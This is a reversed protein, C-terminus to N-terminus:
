RSLSTIATHIETGRTFILHKMDSHSLERDLISLVANHGNALLGAAFRRSQEVALPREATTYIFLPSFQADENIYAIPSAEQLRTLSTCFANRKWRKLIHQEPELTLDFSATDVAIIGKFRDRTLEQEALYRPHTGLLTVLHAGSSHGSLTINTGDGGYDAINDVVWRMAAACDEIHAPHKHTPSLRYNISVVIIGDTTYASAERADVSKKDGINWGGGHVFIHVPLAAEEPNDIPQPLYIDLMHHPNVSEEIYPIDTHVARSTLPGEDAPTVAPLAPSDDGWFAHVNLPQMIIMFLILIIPVIPM